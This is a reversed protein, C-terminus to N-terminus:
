ISNLILIFLVLPLIGTLLSLVLGIWAITRATKHEKKEKRTRMLTTAALIDGIIALAFAVLFLAPTQIGLFLSVLAAIGVILTALGLNKIKSADVARNFTKKVWNNLKLIISSGDSDIISLNEIEGFAEQSIPNTASVPNVLLGSIMLMLFLYIKKM